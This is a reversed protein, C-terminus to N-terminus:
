ASIMGYVPTIDSTAYCTQWTGTFRYEPKNKYFYFLERSEAVVKCGAVVQYTALCTQGTPQLFHLM